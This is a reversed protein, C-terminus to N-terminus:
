KKNLIILLEHIRDSVNLIDFGTHKKFIFDLKKNNRNLILDSLLIMIIVIRLKMKIFIFVVKLSFIGYIIRIVFLLRNM